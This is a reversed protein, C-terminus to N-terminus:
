CFAYPHCKGERNGQQIVGCWHYDRAQAMATCPSCLWTGACDAARCCSSLWPLAGRHRWGSGQSHQQCSGQWVDEWCPTEVTIQLWLHGSCPHHTRKNIQRTWTVFYLHHFITNTKKTNVWLVKAMLWLGQGAKEAISVQWSQGHEGSHSKEENYLSSCSTWTKGHTAVLVLIVALSLLLSPLVCYYGDWM